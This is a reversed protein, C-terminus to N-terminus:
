RNTFVRKVESEARAPLVRRASSFWQGSIRVCVSKESGKARGSGTARRAERSDVREALGHLWVADTFDGRALAAVM